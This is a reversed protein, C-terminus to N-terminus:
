HTPNPGVQLAHDHLTWHYVNPSVVGEPSMGGLVIGAYPTDTSSAKGIVAISAGYLKPLSIDAEIACQIWGRRRYWLLADGHVNMSDLKGGV